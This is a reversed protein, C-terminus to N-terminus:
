LVERSMQVCKDTQTSFIQRIWQSFKCRAFRDQLTHRGRLHQLLTRAAKFM